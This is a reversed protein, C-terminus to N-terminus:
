DAPVLNLQRGIHDRVDQAIGSADTAHTNVIVTNVHADSSKDTVRPRAADAAAASAAAGTDVNPMRMLSGPSPVYPKVGFQADTPFGRGYGMQRALPESIDVGRGTWAAPGRDILPTVFKRGDPTTVEYLDGMRGGSPLAIGATAAASRGSATRVDNFMSGRVTSGAPASTSNVISGPTISAGNPGVHLYASGHDRIMQLVRAKFEPWQSGAIAICGETILADSSGSHLEIGQRDRHLREDWIRNNNIGIAGHARGWPGIAGPTIPYDGAPISANGAGGSGFRYQRGEVEITGGIHTATSEGRTGGFSAPGSPSAPPTPARPVATSTSSSGASSAAGGPAALVPAAADGLTSTGFVAKEIGGIWRIVKLTLGLLEHLFPEM